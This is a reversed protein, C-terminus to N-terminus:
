ECTFIMVVRHTLTCVFFSPHKFPVKNQDIAFKSILFPAPSEMPGPVQRIGEPLNAFYPLCEERKGFYGVRGQSMLMVYDFTRFTAPDPQHITCVVTRGRAALKKLMAMVESAMFSDLGSTPEDIFLLSPDTLIETAFSLRRREGGSIGSGIDGIPNNRAKILNLETM